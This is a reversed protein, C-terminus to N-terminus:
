DNSKKRTKHKLDLSEISEKTFKRMLQLLLQKEQNEEEKAVKLRERIEKYKDIADSPFDSEQKTGYDEIADSITYVGGESDPRRSKRDFEQLEKEIQKRKETHMKWQEYQAFIKDKFLAELAMESVFDSVFRDLQIREALEIRKDLLSVNKSQEQMALASKLQQTSKRNAYLAVFVAIATAVASLENWGIPLPFSLIETICM